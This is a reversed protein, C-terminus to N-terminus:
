WSVRFSLHPLGITLYPSPFYVVPERYVVRTPASRYVVRKSHSRNAYHHQKRHKKQWRKEVRQQKKWAQGHRYDRWRNHDGGREYQTVSHNRGKEYSQDHRDRGSAESLTPTVTWILTLIVLVITAKMNDEKRCRSHQENETAQVIACIDSLLM